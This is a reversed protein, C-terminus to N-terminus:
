NVFAKFIRRLSFGRHWELYFDTDDPVSQFLRGSIRAPYLPNDIVVALYRVGRFTKRGRAYGIAFPLGDVDTLIVYAPSLHLDNPDRKIGVRLSIAGLAIIGSYTGRLADYKFEGIIM